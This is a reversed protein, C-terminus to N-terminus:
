LLPPSLPSRSRTPVESKSVLLGPNPKVGHQIVTDRCVDTEDSGFDRLALQRGIGGLSGLEEQPYAIYWGDEERLSSSDCAGQPAVHREQIRLHKTTHGLM